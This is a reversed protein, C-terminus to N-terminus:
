AAPINHFNIDTSVHGSAALEVDIRVGNGPQLLSGISNLSIDGSTNAGSYRCTLVQGTYEEGDVIVRADLGSTQGVEQAYAPNLNIITLADGNVPILIMRSNQTDVVLMNVDPDLILGNAGDILGATCGPVGPTDLDVAFWVHTAISSGAPVRVVRGNGEDCVFLNKLADFQADTPGSALTDSCGGTNTAYDIEGWLLNPPTAGTTPSPPFGIVRNNGVECIVLSGDVAADVSVPTDFGVPGTVGGANANNSTFDFQGFPNTCTPSAMGLTEDYPFFAIRNNNKDVAWLGYNIPDVVLSCVGDILTDSCGAGTSQFDPQGILGDACDSFNALIFVLIRDNGTDSVYLLGHVNDVATATPGNLSQCGMGGNNRINTTLDDQQGWVSAAAPDVQPFTDATFEVSRNNDTDDVYINDSADICMGQPQYCKHATCGLTNHTFDAQFLIGTATTDPFSGTGIAVWGSVRNNGIEVVWMNGASDFALDRPSTMKTATTNASHTNFDPQGTVYTLTTDVMPGSSYAAAVVRNNNQDAIYLADPNNIDGIKCTTPFNLQHDSCGPTNSTFDLQCLVNNAAIAGGALWTAQLYFMVRHNYSDAIYLNGSRDFTCGLPSNLSLENVNYYGYDRTTFSGDTGLVDIAIYPNTANLDFILVRRNQTDAVALYQGTSDIACGNPNALSSSTPPQIMKNRSLAKPNDGDEGQGWVANATEQITGAINPYRLVRNNASDCTYKDGTIPHICSGTPMYLSKPGLSTINTTGTTFDNRQGRVFSPTINTIPADFSLVRNNTTDAVYRTGAGDICGKTPLDMTTPGLGGTNATGTTLDPQGYALSALAKPISPLRDTIFAITTKLIEKGSITGDYLFASQKNDSPNWLELTIKQTASQENTCVSYANGDYISQEVFPLNVQSGTEPSTLGALRTVSSM